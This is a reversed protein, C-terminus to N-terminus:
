GLYPSNRESASTLSSVAGDADSRAATAAHSAGAATPATSVSGDPATRARSCAPRAAASSRVLKVSISSAAEPRRRTRAPAYVSGAGIAAATSAIKPRWPSGSGGVSFYTREDAPRRSCGPGGGLGTGFTTGDTITSWYWIPAAFADPM